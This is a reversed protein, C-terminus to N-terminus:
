WKKIKKMLDSVVTGAMNGNEGWSDAQVTKYLEPDFRYPAGGVIIKIKSELQREKLIARVKLCGNEGTATHYMMSSIAIVNAKHSVAQEVFKEPSVNLGLDIVDMMHAKLCGSVIRKGLGHFDGPSTGIVITAMIEPASTFKGMLEETLESAVQSAFFHQALNVEGKEVLRYMMSDLSPVIINFVVDEPSLGKALARGIVANVKSKNTDFVAENYEKVFNNEM